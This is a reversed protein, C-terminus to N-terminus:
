IQSCLFDMSHHMVKTILDGVEIKGHEGVLSDEEVAAVQIKCKLGLDLTCLYNFIYSANLLYVVPARFYVVVFAFFYVVVSILNWYWSLNYELKLNYYKSFLLVQQLEESHLLVFHINVEIIEIQSRQFFCTLM